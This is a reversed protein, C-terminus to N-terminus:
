GGEDGGKYFPAFMALQGPLDDVDTQERGGLLEKIANAPNVAVALLADAAFTVRRKRRHSFEFFACFIPHLRYEDDRMEAETTAKTRPAVEFALYSVGEHLIRTVAERDESSGSLIFANQEPTRGRPDRAFEFFVKGIALVMRKIERGRETLGELQDLRRKGVLRAADTQSRPNLTVVEPVVGAEEFEQTIAEDILELFYRINGSALALLTAAGAYYKRIRAGKRGKSLWFLSAYGHNNLRTDWTPGNEKWDLALDLLADATGESWYRLFYTHSKPQTKLWAVLTPPAIEALEKIVDDAVRACGLALAEDAFTMAPLFEDVETPVAIGGEKAHRLRRAVVEKAFLEFGENSIDVEAYDAPSALLDTKDITARSRLGYRRVGVKYSIPPESHKIYTNVVSQQYDLLNEYEDLCCFVSREQLLDAKALSEVYHRVPAEAMSLTPMAGSAPNNVYVELDTLLIALAGLLASPATTTAVSFARCVLSLDADASVETRELLWAHLSCLESCVLINFYHAFTRRWADDTLEPGQFARVRNKNIRIYTGYFPQDPASPDAPVRAAATDFRLSRLVTTKGTGRGGILFCPRNTQLKAFYPPAIFLSTFVDNSWDARYDGFLSSLLKPAGPPTM